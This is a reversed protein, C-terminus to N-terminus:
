KKFQHFRYTMSVSITQFKSSWNVYEQLLNTQNYKIELGFKDNFVYGLNAGLRLKFADSDLPRNTDIFVVKKFVFSSILEGGVFIKSSNNLYFYHRIGLPLNLMKYDAVLNLKRDVFVGGQSNAVKIVELESKYSQFNAELFAAWKNNNFPLIYELEVAFNPYTKKGYPETYANNGVFNGTIEFDSIGLGAKVKTNFIHQSKSFNETKQNTFNANYANVYKILDKKDYNLKFAADSNIIKDKFAELLQNQFSNNEAIYNASRYYKKHVLPEIPNSGKKLYYHYGNANVYQYLTAEGEVLVKLFLTKNVFNPNYNKDLENTNKPSEDLKTKAVVYKFTSNIGFELIDNLGKTEIAATESTKIFITEPNNLWDEDKLLCEKRNNQNDIIYGEKFNTQALGFLPLLFLYFYIKKM